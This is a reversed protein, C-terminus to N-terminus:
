PRSAAGADTIVADLRVDHAATPMDAVLQESFGVGVRLCHPGVGVLFRDYHGRGRGLRHGDPSFALGPVVVVDLTAPPVRGPVVWMVDGDVEPVFVQVHQEGCWDVFWTLDPETRFPEFVMVRQERRGDAAPGGIALRELHAAVVEVLGGCVRRSREGRRAPDSGIVRTVALMRSRLARKADDLSGTTPAVRLSECM